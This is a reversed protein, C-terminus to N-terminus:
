KSEEYFIQYVVCYLSEWISQVDSAVEKSLVTELTLGLRCDDM